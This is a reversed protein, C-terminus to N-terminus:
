ATRARSKAIYRDTNRKHMMQFRDEFGQAKAQANQRAEVARSWSSRKESAEHDAANWTDFSKTEIAEAVVNIREGSRELDGCKRSCTTSTRGDLSKLCVSCFGDYNNLTTM